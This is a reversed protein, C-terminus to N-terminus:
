FFLKNLCTHQQQRRFITHSERVDHCSKVVRLVRQLNEQIMRYYRHAENQAHWFQRLRLIRNM